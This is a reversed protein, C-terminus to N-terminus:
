RDLLQEILREFRDRLRQHDDGTAPGSFGTYIARVRDDRDIFLTTPYARVRDLAPFRRTADAKDSTGAILVPWDADQHAKYENVVRASREFDDGFEFALGLISLGRDGFRRDLEVLYRTEDFCNPCWTGFLVILRAEGAFMPDSLKRLVGDTDRFALDRWSSADDLRTLEFPDDLAADPDPTATWTDHWTDRSWFDGALHGSGDVQARFLFAHAGDFVSLKLEDGVAIGELYRYDGLPTLFTGHIVSRRGVRPAAVQFVGVSSADDSHFRVRYRGAIDPGSSPEGGDEEPFRWRVGHQAHFRMHTEPADGRYRLWEGELRTGDATVRADIRSDYPDFHLTVRGADLTTRGVRFHEAGNKVWADIGRGTPVIELRFPVDGGPGEVAARWVGALPKPSSGVRADDAALLCIALLIPPM